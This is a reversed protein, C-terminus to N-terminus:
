LIEAPGRRLASLSECELSDPFPEKQSKPARCWEDQKDKLSKGEAYARRFDYAADMRTNHYWAKANEGCAHKIHRWARTREWSGDGKNKHKIVFPPEVQMSQPTNEATWRPKFTFAQGGINGASGPLVLMTTIGGAISLNFADDHTNFGDLSRLWPQIPAKFSNGEASGALEPSPYVGMHSHLDVIGPTVWAGDLDVEDVKKGKGKADEVLEDFDETLKHSIKRVVGGEMWVNAGHVVAKGDKEGTWLTANKLWVPRTGHVHRDSHKRKITAVEPSPPPMRIQSCRKMGEHIFPPLAEPEGPWPFGMDETVYQKVGAHHCTVLLAAVAFLPLLFRAPSRRSRANEKLGVNDDDDIIPAKEVDARIDRRQVLRSMTLFIPHTTNHHFLTILLLLTVPHLLVPDTMGSTVM